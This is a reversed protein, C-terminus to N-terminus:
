EIIKVKTPDLVMRVISKTTGGNYSDLVGKVDICDFNFWNGLVAIVDTKIKTKDRQQFTFKEIVNIIEEESIGVNVFGRIVSDVDIFRFREGYASISVLKDCECSVKYVKEEARQYDWARHPDAYTKAVSYVDTIFLPSSYTYREKYKKTNGLAEMYADMDTERLKALSEQHKYFGELDSVYEISNERKEFGGLKDTERGDPTGHYWTEGNVFQEFIKLYRV